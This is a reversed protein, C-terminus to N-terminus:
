STPSSLATSYYNQVLITNGIRSPSIIMLRYIIFQRFDQALSIKDNILTMEAFLGRISKEALWWGHPFNQRITYVDIAKCWDSFNIAARITEKYSTGV